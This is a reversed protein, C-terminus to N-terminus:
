YKLINLQILITNIKRKDNNPKVLYAINVAIILKM